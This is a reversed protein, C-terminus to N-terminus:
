VNCYCSNFCLMKDILVAWEDFENKYFINQENRNSDFM